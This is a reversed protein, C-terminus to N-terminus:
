PTARGAFARWIAEFADKARARVRHSVSRSAATEGPNIEVCPRGASRADLVPAAIYPFASTTGVSVVLDFGRARELELKALAHAPLMESAAAFLEAARGEDLGSELDETDAPQM